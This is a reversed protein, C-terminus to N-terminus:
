RGTPPPANSCRCSNGLDPMCNLTASIGSPWWAAKRTRGARHPLIKEAGILDFHPLLRQPTMAATKVASLYNEGIRRFNERAMATIEGASKERGFCMTLNQLAVHRHRADLHFALGGAARGIRAVLPLPLLQIFAIFTRGLWYILFNMRFTKDSVFKGSAIRFTTRAAVIKIEVRMFYIPLDRRDIKPFRV